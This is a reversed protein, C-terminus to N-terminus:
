GLSRPGRARQHGLLTVLMWACIHAPMFKSVGGERTFASAFAGTGSSLSPESSAARRRSRRLRITAVPRSTTMATMNTLVRSTGSGPKVVSSMWDPASAPITPPRASQNATVASKRWGNPKGIGWVAIMGLLRAQTRSWTGVDGFSTLLAGTMVLVGFARQGLISLVLLPLFMALATYFGKVPNPKAGSNSRFLVAMREM